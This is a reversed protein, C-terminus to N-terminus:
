KHIWDLCDQIKEESNMDVPQFRAKKLFLNCHSKVFDYTTSKSVKLGTFVKRLKEMVQGLVASPSEGACVLIVNKHEENLFRSRGIKGRKEFIRSPDRDYQKAWRQATHAYIGM